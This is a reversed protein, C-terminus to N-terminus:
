YKPIKLKNHLIARLGFAVARRAKELLLLFVQGANKEVQGSRGPRINTPGQCM